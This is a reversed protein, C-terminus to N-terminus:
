ELLVTEVEDVRGMHKLFIAKGKLIIVTPHCKDSFDQFILYAEQIKSGGVALNIWANVLQALTHDEDNQRMLKLQKEEYGSRHTKLYILKRLAYLELTGGSHTHKLAENYDHEHMYITGVIL